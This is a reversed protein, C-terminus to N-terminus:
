QQRLQRKALLELHHRIVDSKTRRVVTCVRPHVPTWRRKFHQLVLSRVHESYLFCHSILYFEKLLKCVSIIAYSYTSLITLLFTLVHGYEPVFLGYLQHFPACEPKRLSRLLRRHAPIRCAISCSCPREHLVLLRALLKIKHVCVQIMDALLGACVTEGQDNVPDCLDIRFTVRHDKCAVEIDFWIIWTQGTKIGAHLAGALNRCLGVAVM